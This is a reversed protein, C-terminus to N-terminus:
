RLQAKRHAAHVISQQGLRPLVRCVLRLLEISNRYTWMGDRSECTLALTGPGPKEWANYPLLLPREVCARCTLCYARANTAIICQPNHISQWPTFNPYPLRAPAQHPLSLVCSIEAAGKWPCPCVCRCHQSVGRKGDKATEPETQSTQTELMHKNSEAANKVM